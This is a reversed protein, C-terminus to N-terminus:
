QKDTTDTFNKEPTRMLKRKRNISDGNRRKIVHKTSSKNPSETAQEENSAAKPFVPPTFDQINLRPIVVRLQRKTHTSLVALLDKGEHSTVDQATRQSEDVNEKKTRDPELVRTSSRTERKKTLSRRGASKRVPKRQSEDSDEIESSTSTQSLVMVLMNGLFDEKEPVDTKPSSRTKVRTYSSAEKTLKEEESDREMISLRSQSASRKPLDNSSITGIVPAIQSM